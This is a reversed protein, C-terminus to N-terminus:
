SQWIHLAKIRGLVTNTDQADIHHWNHSFKLNYIRRNQEDYIAILENPKEKAGKKGAKYGIEDVSFNHFEAPATADVERVLWRERAATVAKKYSKKIYDFNQPNYLFSDTFFPLLVFATGFEADVFLEIERIFAKIGNQVPTSQNAFDIQKKQRNMLAAFRSIKAKYILDGKNWEQIYHEEELRTKKSAFLLSTSTTTHPSFAFNPLAVIAKINFHKYLFIRGGVDDEVSFFSEPLVVGLRGGPRLLQYWREVFYAESKGKIDFHKEVHEKTVNVNFPPNSIVLDFREIVSRKYFASEKITNGSLMSKAGGVGFQDYDEFPALGNAAYINTSGDGHLIMNLQCATALIAENDLGYVYDRVWLFINEGSGYQGIFRKIDQDGNVIANTNQTIYRQVYQMYQILFTGTGCSPDIVFPMRYTSHVAPQQLYQNIIQEIDLATLIFLVLNPHTLYLGKTQKFAERIVMEYFEGLIDINQYRNAGFSLNHLQGVCRQILHPPFEQFDIGKVDRLDMNKNKAIYEIFASRYLRDVDQAIELDTQATGARFKRQFQYAAGPTTKREDYIKALLVKNFNEFKKNDELNGNWIATWLNQWIRRIEEVNFNTHLDKVHRSSPSVGDLKTYIDIERAIEDPAILDFLHTSRGQDTWEQYTHSRKTDIGICRLPFEELSLPIDVTLYFLYRATSCKILQTYPKYLQDRIASDNVGKFDNARKVECFFDVDGSLSYVFIDTEVARAGVKSRGGIEARWELEIQSPQYGYRRILNLVILTRTLEEDTPRGSITENVKLCNEIYTLSDKNKDIVLFEKNQDLNLIADYFLNRDDPSLRSSM